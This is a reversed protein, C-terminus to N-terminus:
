YRSVSFKVGSRDGKVFTVEFNGRTGISMRCKSIVEGIDGDFDNCFLVCDDYSAGTITGGFKGNKVSEIIKQGIVRERWEKTGQNEREWQRKEREERQRAWEEKEIEYKRQQALIYKEGYDLNEIESSNLYRNTEDEEKKGMIVAFVVCAIWIGIIIITIVM